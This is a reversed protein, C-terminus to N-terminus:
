KINKTLEWAEVFTGVDESFTKNDSKPWVKFFDKLVFGAKILQNHAFKRSVKYEFHDSSATQMLFKELELTRVSKDISDLLHEYYKLTTEKDSSYIEGLLLIGGVKLASKVNEIYKGKDEDPVHHYAFM